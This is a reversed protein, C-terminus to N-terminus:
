RKVYKRGCNGVHWVLWKVICMIERERQLKYKAVVYVTPISEIYPVPDSFVVKISM